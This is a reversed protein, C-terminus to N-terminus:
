RQKRRLRRRSTWIMLGYGLLLSLSLIYALIAYQSGTM